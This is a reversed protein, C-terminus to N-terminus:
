LSSGATLLSDLGTRRFFDARLRDAVDARVAIARGSGAVAEKM